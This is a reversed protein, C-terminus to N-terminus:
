GRSTIRRASSSEALLMMRTWLWGLPSGVLETGKAASMGAESPYQLRIDIADEGVIIEDTILQIIERKRDSDFDPWRSHFSRADDIAQDQNLKGIKAVDIKAQLQVLEGEIQQLRDFLPQYRLGFGKTPVEGRSHLDFLVDIERQLKNREERQTELLVEDDIIARDSHVLFANVEDDDLLFQSLQSHFIAELDAAPIKRNCQACHYKGTRERAYMKCGCVCWVKGGFLHLPRPGPSTGGAKRSTLTRNCSEWLDEPVIAEVATYIWEREPKLEYKGGNRRTSFNARYVGKATTDKILDEIVKASFERGTRSRYGRENLLHAVTKKRRHEAYLEYVLRRVPAEDPHLCMRKDLWRYGFPAPGGIPKGLSARVPISVAVREAIEEREWQAMAAIMTFFLRGAPSSTDISEQLSVLDAGSQRFIEAFDLLERTNRALRALKSFVLAEIKGARVDALMRQAEPHAAVAKGSVGDLRYLEAVAWGKVDAYARARREHHEPSDGHAQDETSVRVWIGVRKQGAGNGASM